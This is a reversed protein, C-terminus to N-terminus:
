GTPNMAKIYKDLMNNQNNWGAYSLAANGVGGIAQNWANAQGMYGSARANGAQIANEGMQQGFAGAANTLTNSSTQGSGMLSQLPNLLNAQETYYRNFDNMYENSGFNQGYEVLGRLTNGSKLTGGAAKSAELAKLGEKLRFAYGPSQTYDTMSFPRAASGYGEAGTNKSLGLLDLLRNQSTLGAERFPTQLEIQKNFMREQVKNSEKVGALQARAADSAANAGLIGSVISGGAMIAAATSFTM